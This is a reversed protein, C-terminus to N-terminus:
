SQKLRENVQHDIIIQECIKQIQALLINDNGTSGTIDLTLQKIEEIKDLLEQNMKEDAM